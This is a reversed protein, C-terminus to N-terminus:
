TIYPKLKKATREMESYICGCYKQRYLGLAHCKERGEHYRPRWDKYYFEMQFKQSLGLGVSKVLEHDQYPSYTVTTAFADFGEEKARRACHGLRIEYCVACRQGDALAIKKLYEALDYKKEDMVPLQYHSLFVALAERRLLYESAPHINPNYWYLTLAHDGQLDECPIIACPACCTHLLIKM